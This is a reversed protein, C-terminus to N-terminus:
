VYLPGDYIYESVIYTNYRVLLTYTLWSGGGSAWICFNGLELSVNINIVHLVSSFPQFM